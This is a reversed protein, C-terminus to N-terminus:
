KLVRGRDSNEVTYIKVEKGSAADIYICYEEGGYSCNVEYCLTEDGNLPILALRILSVDYDDSLSSLVQSKGVTPSPIDRKTHNMWYSFAEVGTVIGKTECVKVKVMDSYCVVDDQEYVFNINCTTGSESIWVAELDKFGCDELFEEAIDVCRDSNFNNETCDEHSEFLVLKGGQKSLQIYYERGQEDKATYNFCTFGSVTAEGVCEAEGIGYDDLLRAIIQAGERSSIESYGSLASEKASATVSAFPGDTIGEPSTLTSEGIKNFSQSITADEKGSMLAMIDKVTMNASLSDLESRISSNLEYLYAVTAIDSESLTEGSYIKQLAGNAFSSTKNIFGSISSSTLSDIPLRELNTEAVESRVLIDTLLKAQEGGSSSARLKAFDSQIIDATENLEYMDNMYGSAMGGNMDSMSIAGATIVTGMALTTVGLAIVAALWGGFGPAHERRASNERKKARAELRQERKKLRIEKRKLALAHRRERERERAALREKKEREKRELRQVATENKIMDRREARAAKRAAAREKAEAKREARREKAQLKEAKRRDKREAKSQEKRAKKSSKEKAKKVREAAKKKEAAGKEEATSKTPSTTKKVTKEITKVKEAGSSTNEGVSNKNEDM